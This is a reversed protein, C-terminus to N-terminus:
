RIDPFACTMIRRVLDVRFYLVADGGGQTSGFSDYATLLMETMKAPVMLPLSKELFERKATVAEVPDRATPTFVEICVRRLLDPQRELQELLAPLRITVEVAQSFWSNGRPNAKWAADFEQLLRPIQVLEFPPLGGRLTSEFRTLPDLRQRQNLSAEDAM